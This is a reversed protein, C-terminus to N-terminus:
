VYRYTSPHFPFATRFGGSPLRRVRPSDGNLRGAALFGLEGDAEDILQQLAASRASEKVLARRAAGLVLREDASDPVQVSATADTPRTPAAIWRVVYTGTDEPSIEVTLNDGAGHAEWETGPGPHGNRFPNRGVRSQSGELVRLRDGGLDEAVGVIALVGTLTTSPGTFSTDTPKPAVLGQRVWKRYQQAYEVGFLSLWRAPTVWGPTANHDDDVYFRARDILDNWVYAAM